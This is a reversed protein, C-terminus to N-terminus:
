RRRPSSLPPRPSRWLRIFRGAPPWFFSRIRSDRRSTRAAAGGARFLEVVAVSFCLAALRSPGALARFAGYRCLAGRRRDGGVRGLRAFRLRALSPEVASRRRLAPRCGVLDFPPARDGVRRSIGIVGFWLIMIPGFYGGVLETGRRQVIFLAVLLLLTLPVVYSELAPTAVKLGEVASLVSISPTIVGDGYFLAAGILGAWM